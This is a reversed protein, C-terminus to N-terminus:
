KSVPPTLVQYTLLPTVNINGRIEGQNREEYNINDRVDKRIKTVRKILLKEHM